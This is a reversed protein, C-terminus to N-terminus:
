RGKDKDDGNYRNAIEWEITSDIRIQWNLQHYVAITLKIRGSIYLNIFNTCIRRICPVSFWRYERWTTSSRDNTGSVSHDRRHNCIQFEQHEPIHMHSLSIRWRHVKDVAPQRRKRLSGWGSLWIISETVVRGALYQKTGICTDTHTGDYETTTNQIKEVTKQIRNHYVTTSQKWPKPIVMVISRKSKITVM